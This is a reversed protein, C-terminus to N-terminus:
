GVEPALGFVQVPNAKGKLSHTGLDQFPESSQFGATFNESCILPVGLQKMVGELRFATNVTDGIITADRQAVLGINGSSVQGYHLAIGVQMQENLDPWILTTSQKLLDRACNLASRCPGTADETWYALVADGIFKDVVGGHHGVANGATRFWQGVFQSVKAPPLKESYTSFNRVDCVLIAATLVRSTQQAVTVAMTTGSDHGAPDDPPLHFLIENNGVKVKAGDRLALPLVVQGGNVFTGNRSGLDIVQYTMGNQCRIMAHQRSVHPDGPFSITNAGSRGITATNEIELLYPEGGAPTVQLQAAM